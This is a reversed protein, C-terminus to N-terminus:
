VVRLGVMPTGKWGGAEGEAGDEPVGGYAMLASVGTAMLAANDSPLESM